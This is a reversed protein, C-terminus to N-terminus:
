ANLTASLLAFFEEAGSTIQCELPLVSLILGRTAFTAAFSKLKVADKETTIVAECGLRLAAEIIADVDRQTYRHHDRFVRTGAVAFRQSQLSGYFREPKAIGSVAYLSRELWGESNWWPEGVVAVPALTHSAVEVIVAHDIYESPVAARVESASVGSMCCLVDARRLATLPERLRGAPLLQPRDLTARDLLVINCDRHLQRHQFGDDVVVVQAAFRTVASEAAVFKRENVVVPVRLGSRLSWEAHMLPEDGASDADALVAVGDCVIVEGTSRRGYGRAVIATQLGHTAVDRVVLQVFPSKGTGGAALNGVSVVRAAVRAVEARGADFRRNRAAVFAGYISSLLTAM